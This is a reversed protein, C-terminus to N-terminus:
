SDPTLPVPASLLNSLLDVIQKWYNAIVLYMWMLYSFEAGSQACRLSFSSTHNMDLLSVPTLYPRYLTSYM